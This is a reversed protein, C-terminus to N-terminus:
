LLRRVRKRYAGYAEGHAQLLAEEELRIQIQILLWGSVLVVLCVANPLLLFFGGLAAIMGLFIPNRSMSFVGHNVLATKNKSDIGIRWSRGMQSQAVVTWVMSLLCLAAGCLRAASVDLFPIPVTYPYLEPIWAFLIITPVIAMVLKLLRGIYDHANDTKGFVIPNIGTERYTRVSPWVFAALFYLVFFLTALLAAGSFKM